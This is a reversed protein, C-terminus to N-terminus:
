PLPGALSAVVVIRNGAGLAKESHVVVTDGASVGDLIQVRGDLGTPGLRVPAYVPAGDRVVWVGPRGQLHKVAANPLVVGAATPPLSLTV